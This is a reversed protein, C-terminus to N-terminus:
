VHARGIEKKKEKTEWDRYSVFYFDMSHMTISTFAFTVIALVFSYFKQISFFFSFPQNLSESSIGCRMRKGAVVQTENRRSDMTTFVLEM